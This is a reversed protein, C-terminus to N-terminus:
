LIDSFDTWLVTMNDIPTFIDYEIEGSFMLSFVYRRQLYHDYENRALQDILKEVSTKGRTRLINIIREMETHPVQVENYLVLYEHNDRLITDTNDIANQINLTNAIVM